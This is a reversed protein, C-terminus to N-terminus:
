TPAGPLQDVSVVERVEPVRQRIAREVGMKLTVAAHPCGACAGSLKVQVTGNDDIGVLEIDGGDRQIYPRIANIAETVREHLSANPQPADSM